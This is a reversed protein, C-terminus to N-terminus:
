FYFVDGDILYVRQASKNQSGKVLYRDLTIEFIQDNKIRITAPLELLAGVERAPGRAHCQSETISSSRRECCRCAASLAFRSALLAVALFGPLRWSVGSPVPWAVFGEGCAGFRGAYRSLLPKISM